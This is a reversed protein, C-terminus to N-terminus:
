FKIFKANVIPSNQMLFNFIIVQICIDLLSAANGHPVVTGAQM